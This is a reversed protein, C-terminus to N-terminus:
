KSGDRRDTDEELAKAAAEIALADDDPGNVAELTGRQWLFHDMDNTLSLRINLTEEDVLTVTFTLEQDGVKGTLLYRGDDSKVSDIPISRQKGRRSAVVEGKKFAYSVQSMRKLVTPLFKEDEAKWDPTARLKAKTAEADLVWSGEIAAPMEGAARLSSLLGIAFTLILITKM